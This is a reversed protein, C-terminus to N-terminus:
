TIGNTSPLRQARPQLTFLLERDGVGHADRALHRIRQLIRVVVAHDM